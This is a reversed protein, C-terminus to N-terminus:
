KNLYTGCVTCFRADTDNPKGCHPCSVTQLSKGCKVCFRANPDNPAGCGPCATRQVNSGCKTCFKSVGDVPAGCNPCTNASRNQTQMTTQQADAPLAFGKERMIEEYFAAYATEKYPTIWYQLIGVTLVSLLDWGIFSLELCFLRWKNGNMLENSKKIAENASMQPNDILIYYAMSYSYTKIIGPIIFLLSWLMIFIEKLLALLFARSFSKFGTFLDNFEINKGRVVKLATQAMGFTLPGTLLLLVIGGTISGAVNNLLFFVLTILAFTGWIAGIWENGLKQRATSRFDRAYLM